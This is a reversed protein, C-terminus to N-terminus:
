QNIIKKNEIGHQNVKHLFFNISVTPPWIETSTKKLNISSFNSPFKNKGPISNGISTTEYQSFMKLLPLQQWSGHIKFNIHLNQSPKQM